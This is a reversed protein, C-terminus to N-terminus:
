TRDRLFIETYKHSANIAVRMFAMVAVMEFICSCCPPRLVDLDDFSIFMVYFMNKECLYRDDYMSRLTM